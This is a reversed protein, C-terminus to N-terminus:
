QSRQATCNEAYDRDLKDVEAAIEEDSLAKREEDNKRYLFGGAAVRDRYAALQACQQANRKSEALADAQAQAESERHERSDTVIRLADDIEQNRRAAAAHDPPATDSQVDVTEANQDPRRDAFHVNGDADVWKYIEGAASTSFLLWLALLAPLTAPAKM